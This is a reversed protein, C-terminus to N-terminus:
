DRSLELAVMLSELENRTLEPTPSSAVLNGDRLVLMRHSLEFIEHMHHSVYLVAVGDEALQRVIAYIRERHGEDLSATPEDFVIVSPELALANAIEVLQRQGPALTDVKAAPSFDAGVRELLPRVRSIPLACTQVGTVLDDRIGDEAQFFFFM